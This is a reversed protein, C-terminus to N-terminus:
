NMQDLIYPDKIKQDEAFLIIKALIEATKPDEDLFPLFIPGRHQSHVPLVNIQHVGTMHVVGSGLHVTYEGRTGEIFAHSKKVTVNKLNFLELNYNVIVARMEITSHSTEPDVSGAHAVSVALDADRMTESYVVDPIEAITLPKFTTRDTFSVYELTPPEIDSPSFWDALAWFTAVINDKHYIKELGGDPDAIWRRKKLLAATKMPQIQYGAFMRSDTQALEEDLKTYLERFVQRFPQKVGSERQRDFFLRQWKSWTKSKYMDYPHAVRIQAKKGFDGLLGCKGSKDDIFVLNELLPKVIPNSLLDLLEEATYLERNEMSFEFMQVTRSRQDKLEKAAQKLELFYEDKKFSTPISKLPKEGRRIEVAPAGAEDVAIRVDPAKDGDLTKWEFYNTLSKALANEMILTLRTVDAFGARTALNRLAMDCAIRESERRQAGFQKSEKRFNQIFVYRKLIDDKGKLPVLPYSMLLDKNRKATIEAELDATAVRGLAADAYRRARAHKAGDCAYKASDYLIQFKEEGLTKYADEFWQLDFAGNLLEDKTLQTYRAIESYKKEDSSYRDNMHAMFYYAGSKFGKYGLYSELMDLWEPVYMGVEVLRQKSIDKGKLAKALDKATEGPKPRCAKLMNSLNQRRTYSDQEYGRSLTDTGLAALLKVFREVGNIRPVESAIKSYKQRSTGRSCESDIIVDVIKEEVQDVFEKFEKDADLRYSKFAEVYSLRRPDQAFEPVQAYHSRFLAEVRPNFGIPNFVGKFMQPRTIIGYFCALCYDLANLSFASKADAGDGEENRKYLDDCKLLLNFRTIFQEKTSWKQTFSWIIREGVETLVPSIEKKNDWRSKTVFWREEEPVATCLYEVTKKGLEYSFDGDIYMKELVNLVSIFLSGGYDETPKKRKGECYRYKSFDMNVIAEGILNSFLKDLKLNYAKIKEAESKAFDQLEFSCQRVALIMAYLEEQNKIETEYFEKWVSFLPTREELTGTWKVDILCSRDGLIVKDGWKDVYEEKKHADITKQLSNFLETLREKTVSFLPYNAPNWSVDQIPIVDKKTFLGTEEKEEKEGSADIEKILALEQETPKAIEKMLKKGVELVPSDKKKANLEKLVDLGAVRMEKRKSTLLLEVSRTLGKEDQKQVMELVSKRIGESKYRLLECIQDYEDPTFSIDKAIQAAVLQTYSEKDGIADILARRLKPTKPNSLLLKVANYRESEADFDPLKEALEEMLPVDDLGKALLAIRIMFESRSTWVKFWPFLFPNWEYKKRDMGALLGKLIELHKKATKIDPFWRKLDFPEIKENGNRYTWTFGAVQSAATSYDNLYNTTLISATELELDKSELLPFIIEREFEKNQVYLSYYAAVRKQVVGGSAAFKRIVKIADEVEVVGLGWLGALLEVADSGKLLEYASERDDTVQKILRFIKESSRKLHEPDIMGIWTAAARRVSSFRLLNEKDIVDLIARFAAHTGCDANECIAQRLGEQLRAAVLTNALLKHLDFDDSKVVGRIASESISALNNDSTFIQTLADKVDRDGADLAAAIIDDLGSSDRDSMKYEVLDKSMNNLLYDALSCGFFQLRYAQVLIPRVTSIPDFYRKTRVLRRSWGTTYPFQNIKAFYKYLAKELAPAGACFAVLPAHNQKFFERPTKKFGDFSSRLEEWYKEQKKNWYYESFSTFLTYVDKAHKGYHETFEKGPQRTKRFKDFLEERKAYSLSM